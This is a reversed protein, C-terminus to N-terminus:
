LALYILTLTRLSKFSMFHFYAFINPINFYENSFSFRGKTCTRTRLTGVPQYYPEFDQDNDVLDVYLTAERRHEPVNRRFKPIKNLMKRFTM